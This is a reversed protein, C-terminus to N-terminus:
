EDSTASYTPWREREMRARYEASQRAIDLDGYPGARDEGHAVMWGFPHSYVLATLRQRRRRQMLAWNGGGKHKWVLRLRPM